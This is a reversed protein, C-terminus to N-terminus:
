TRETTSPAQVRISRIRGDDFALAAELVIGGPVGGVVLVFRALAAGPAGEVEALPYDVDDAHGALSRALAAGDAVAVPGDINEFSPEDALLAALTVVDRASLAAFFRRVAVVELAGPVHAL